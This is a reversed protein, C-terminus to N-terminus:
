QVRSVGLTGTAPVLPHNTTFGRPLSNPPELERDSARLPDTSVPPAHSVPAACGTLAALTALVPTLHLRM